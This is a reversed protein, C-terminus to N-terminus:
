KNTFIQIKQLYPKGKRGFCYICLRYNKNDKNIKAPDIQFVYDVFNETLQKIQMGSQQFKKTKPNQVQVLIGLKALPKVAPDAAARIRLKLPQDSERELLFVLMPYGQSSLAKVNKYKTVSKAYRAHFTTPDSFDWEELIKEEAAFLTSCIGLVFGLAFISKKM